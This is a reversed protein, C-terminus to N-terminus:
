VGRRNGYLEVHLRPCYRYGTQRCLDSIWLARTRLTQADTGEPMLLVDSASWGTLQSLLSQIEEMDDPRAVVFKL